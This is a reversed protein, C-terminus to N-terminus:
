SGVPVVVASAVVVDQEVQHHAVFSVISLVKTSQTTSATLHFFRAIKLINKTTVKKQLLL